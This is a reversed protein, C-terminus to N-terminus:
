LNVVILVFVWDLYTYVVVYFWKGCFCSTIYVQLPEDDSLEVVEEGQEEDEEREQKDETEQGGQLETQLRVSRRKPRV